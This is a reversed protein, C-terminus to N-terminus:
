PSTRSHSGLRKRCSIGASSSLQSPRSGSPLGSSRRARPRAARSSIRRMSAPPPASWAHNALPGSMRSQGPACPQSMLSDSLLRLPGEPSGAPLRGPAARTHVALRGPAQACTLCGTSRVPLRAHAPPGGGGPERDVLRASGMWGPPGSAPARNRTPTGRRGTSGVGPGVPSIGRGYGKGEPLLSPHPDM